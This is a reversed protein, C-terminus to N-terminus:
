VHEATALRLLKVRLLPGAALDFPREAEEAVLRYAEAEHESEPNESLDLLHLTLPVLLPM